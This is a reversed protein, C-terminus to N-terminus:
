LLQARLLGRASNGVYFGDRLEGATLSAERARGEDLLRQRLVGPLLGDSLPPTLLRGDREVFVNARWGETLAGRESQLLADFCGREGAEHRAVDHAPRWTTKHRLFPDDSKVRATSLCVRVPEQLRLAPEDTISIAGDLTLRLRRVTKTVGQAQETDGQAQRLTATVERESVDVGFASATRLLRARHLALTAEDANGAFTELIAFADHPRLFRSKVFIEAWEDAATSDAVIGGGADFRGTRTTADLQATRIAVNWWGQRRPSLFGITGCYAGRPRRESASIFRMAAMKPAGTVSGCPFTAAFADGLSVGDRLTGAITSTMTAYTPYREIELFREVEVGDCVRHLDNRLLDVIMVHEARNKADHLEDLADLRATGKMPKTRVRAGDFELFLEPSWSLTTRDGDEVYAQYRAGSRRAYYAYFEWLNCDIALSFPITYNVQYVDGDYIARQLTELTADYAAREVRSLLPSHRVAAPDPLEIARPPGFVGLAAGAGEYPVYGAIWAGAKLAADARNFLERVHLADGARLVEVPKEFLLAPAVGLTVRLKDFPLEDV